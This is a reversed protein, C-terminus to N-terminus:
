TWIVAAKAAADTGIRHTQQPGDQPNLKSSDASGNSWFLSAVYLFTAENGLASTPFDLPVQECVYDQM